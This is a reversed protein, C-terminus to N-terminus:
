MYVSVCFNNLGGSIRKDAIDIHYQDAVVSTASLYTLAYENLALYDVTNPLYKIYYLKLKEYDFKRRSYRIHAVLNDLTTDIVGDLPHNQPLLLM